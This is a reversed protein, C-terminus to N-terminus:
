QGSDKLTSDRVTLSIGSNDRNKLLSFSIHLHRTIQGHDYILFHCLWGPNGATPGWLGLGSGRSAVCSRQKHIAGLCARPSQGRTSVSAIESHSSKPHNTVTKKLTKLLTKIKLHHAHVMKIVIFYILLALRLSDGFCITQLLSSPFCPNTQKQDPLPFPKSLCDSSAVKIKITM